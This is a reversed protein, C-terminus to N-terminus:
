DNEGVKTFPIDKKECYDQYLTNIRAKMDLWTKYQKLAFAGFSLTLGHSLVEILNVNTLDM